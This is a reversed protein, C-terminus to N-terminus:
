NIVRMGNGMKPSSNLMISKRRRSLAKQHFYKSNRNGELMWLVRSRQRWILKDKELWM